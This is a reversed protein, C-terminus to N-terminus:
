EDGPKMTKEITIGEDSMAVDNIKKIEGTSRKLRIYNNNNNSDDDYEELPL